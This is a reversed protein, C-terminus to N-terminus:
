LYQLTRTVISDGSKVKFIYMGNEKLTVKIINGQSQKYFIMEGLLNYVEVTTKKNNDELSIFFVGDCSPNPYLSINANNNFDNTNTINKEQFDKNYYDQQINNFIYSEPTFKYKTSQPSITGEWGNLLTMAYEGESNTIQEEPFGDLKINEIAVGYKDTIKGAITYLSSYHYFSRYSIVDFDNTETSWDFNTRVIFDLNDEYQLKDEKNLGEWTKTEKDWRFHAHTSHRIENNTEWTFERKTDYIWESLKVDWEFYLYQLAKGQDNYKFEGKYNSVWKNLDNSWDYKEYKIRLNNEDFTDDLRKYEILTGNYENYIVESYITYNEYNTITTETKEICIWDNMDYSWDLKKYLLQVGAENYKYEYKYDGEWLMTKTNWYYCADLINYGWKDYGYENKSSEEWKDSIWEYLILLTALNQNDYSYDLKQYNVWKSDWVFYTLNTYNGYENYAYEIKSDKTWANNYWVYFTESELKRKNNYAMETKYDYIWDNNEISWIYNIEEILIQDPDYSKEVKKQGHWENIDVSWKWYSGIIISDNDNYVYEYKDYPYWENNNRDWSYFSSLLMNGRKDYDRLWKGLGFWTGINMLLYSSTDRGAENYEIYEKTNIASDNNTYFNYTIISDCRRKSGATYKEYLKSSKKKAWAEILDHPSENTFLNKSSAERPFNEQTKTSKNNQPIFTQFKELLIPGGKKRYYNQKQQAQAACSLFVLFSLLLNKM